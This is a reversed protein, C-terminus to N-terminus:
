SRTLESTEFTFLELLIELSRVTEYTEHLLPGELFSRSATKYSGFSRSSPAIVSSPAEQM